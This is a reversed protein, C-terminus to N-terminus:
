QLFPLYNFLEKVSGEELKGKKNFFTAKPVSAFSFKPFLLLIRLSCIVVCIEKNEVIIKVIEL